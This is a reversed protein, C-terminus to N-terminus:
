PTTCSMTYHICLTDVIIRLFISQMCAPRKHNNTNVQTRRCGPLLYLMTVTNYFQHETNIDTVEILTGITRGIGAGIAAGTPAGAPSATAITGVAAGIAGGVASFATALLGQMTQTLILDIAIFIINCVLTLLETTATSKGNNKHKKEGFLFAAFLLLQSM